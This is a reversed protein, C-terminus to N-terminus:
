RVFPRDLGERADVLLLLGPLLEVGDVLALEFVRRAINLFRLDAGFDRVEGGITQVVRAAGDGRPFAHEIKATLIGLRVARQAVEVFRSRFLTTYPFLTSCSPPRIM